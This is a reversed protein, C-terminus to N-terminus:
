CTSIVEAITHENVPSVVGKETIIATILAAPTVDFAPNYVDVGHPATARGGFSTVEAADREEIPIDAGTKTAADITSTPAAVYFPVGFHHALIAVGLTGIKNATDGNAAIRDAGVIVADVKGQSLVAATMTDCILTAPVDNARLEFATIRSGQMLPRTEDVFVHFRRGQEHGVYVPALATGYGATALGGANCHTLVNHVESQPHRIQQDLLRLGHEGISRNVRHDEEIMALCEDLIADQADRVVHCSPSAGTTGVNERAVRQVRELAWFLNVATPRSTALYDCVQTLRVTFERANEGNFARVGLYAGFAAAIGIAPAGRVVLRRIANHMEREDTIDIYVTEGPLKTQDLLRMGSGTWAIPQLM